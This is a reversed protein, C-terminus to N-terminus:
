HLANVDPRGPDGPRRPQDPQNPKGPVESPVRGPQNDDQGPKGPQQQGPAQKAPADGPSHTTNM